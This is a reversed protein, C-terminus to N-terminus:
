YFYNFHAIISLDEGILHPVDEGIVIYVIHNVIKTFRSTRIIFTVCRDILKAM